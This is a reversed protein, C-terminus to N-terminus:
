IAEVAKFSLTRMRSFDTQWQRWNGSLRFTGVCNQTIITQGDVVGEARIAPFILLYSFGSSGTPTSLLVKHLRQGLQIYDGAFLPQDQNAAWGKTLVCTTGASFAGSILPTGLAPGQPTKRSPDGLLFTGVIGRLAVLFTIWFEAQSIPMDPLAVEAEWWEGAWQVIQATGTFPSISASNLNNAGITIKRPSPVTPMTLPYVILGNSGYVPLLAAFNYGTLNAGALPVYSYRPPTFTYGPLAPTLVYGDDPLGAITFNGSSDATVAGQAMGSVGRYAIVAGAKAANGSISHAPAATFVLGTANAGSLIVPLASPSFTYGALSPRIVHSGSALGSFSFNGSGDATVTNTPGDCSVSAGAVGANGSISFVTLPSTIVYAASSIVGNYGTAVALVYITGSFGVAISAGNAIPTDSTSPTGTRNWYMAFGPLDVSLSSIVVTQAGVYSGAALSFTAPEIGAADFAGLDFAFSSPM